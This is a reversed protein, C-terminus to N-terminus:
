KELEKRILEALEDLRDQRKFLEKLVKCQSGVAEELAEKHGGASRRGYL